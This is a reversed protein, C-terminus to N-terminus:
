HHTSEEKKSLYTGVDFLEVVDMESFRVLLPLVLHHLPFQHLHVILILHVDDILELVQDHFVTDLDAPQHEGFAVDVAEVDDVRAPAFDLVRGPEIAVKQRGAVVEALWQHKLGLAEIVEPADLCEIGIHFAEKKAAM